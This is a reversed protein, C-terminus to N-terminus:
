IINNYADTIVSSLTITPDIGLSTGSKDIFSNGAIRASSAASSKVAYASANVSYTKVRDISVTSTTIYIPNGASTDLMSKFSGGIVQALSVKLGYNNESEGVCDILMDNGEPMGAMRIGEANVSRGIGKTVSFGGIDLGVADVSIGVVNSSNLICGRGEGETDLNALLVGAHTDSIGTVNTINIIRGIAPSESSHIYMGVNAFSKGTVNVMSAKSNTTVVNVDVAIAMKSFVTVNTAKPHDGVGLESESQLFLGADDDVDELIDNIVSDTIHSQTRIRIKRYSYINSITCLGAITSPTSGSMFLGGVWNSDTGSMNLLNFVSGTANLMSNDAAFNSEGEVQISNVKNVSDDVSFTFDAVKKLGVGSYNVNAKVILDETTDNFLLVTEGAVASANALTLTAFFEMKGYQSTRTNGTVAFGLAPELPDISGGILAMIAAKNVVIPLTKLCEDVTADGKTIIGTNEEDVIELEYDYNYIEINKTLGAESEEFGCGTFTLDSAPTSNIIPTGDNCNCTCICGLLDELESILDSPDEGCFAAYDISTLLRLSDFIISSTADKEAQTCDSKLRANLEVLKANVCCKDISCKINKSCKVDYLVEYSINDEGIYTACVTGTLKYEGEYIAVSFASLTSELPPLESETPYLLTLDNVQSNVRIGKYNAPSKLSIIVKEDACNAVIEANLCGKKKNKNKKDPPCINVTKVVTWAVDNEDVLRVTITYTGYQFNGAVLPIPYEVVDTMPPEIDYGSTTYDKITIGLPNDIKVSAGPIYAQGGATFVSPSVDIHFNGDCLSPMIASDLSTIYDSGTVPTAM